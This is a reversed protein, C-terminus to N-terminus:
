TSALIKFGKKKKKTVSDCTKNVHTTFLGDVNGNIELQYKIEVEKADCHPLTVM